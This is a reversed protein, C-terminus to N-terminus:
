AIAETDLISDTIVIPIGFAETPTGPLIGTYAEQKTSATMTRSIQLQYASRRSMLLHTPRSGVPFRSLLDAIRADTVGKGSDATCNKLRGIAYRNACQLGVWATLDAVYAAFYKGASDIGDGERFASLDITTGNGYVYQVGQPSAQIAYVSSGTNATTGTADAVITNGMEALLAQLGPFGKTATTGYFTQSGITLLASKMVGAAEIAQLNALGDEYGSAIAKDVVVRSSLIFAEVLRTTFNSKSADTGENANRFATSPLTNRTVIKYSIGKITRAPIIDVEPAATRVEEILDAVLDRGNLKTIDLLTLNNPM